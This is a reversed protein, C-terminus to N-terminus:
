FSNDIYGHLSLSFKEILCILHKFKLSFSILMWYNAYIKMWIVHSIRKACLNVM